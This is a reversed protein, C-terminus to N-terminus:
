GGCKLTKTKTMTANRYEERSWQNDNNKDGDQWDKKLRDKDLPGNYLAYLAGYSIEDGYHAEFFTEEIFRHVRGVFYETRSPTNKKMAEHSRVADAEYEEYSIRGDANADIAEWRAEKPEESEKCAFAPFAFGCLLMLALLYKM